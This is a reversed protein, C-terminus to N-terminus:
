HVEVARSFESSVAPVLDEGALTVTATVWKGRWDGKAAFRVQEAFRRATGLYYQGDGYGSRHPADSAYFHFTPARGAPTSTVDIQTTDTAPDYTASTIVPASTPGDLGKDIGMQWNA